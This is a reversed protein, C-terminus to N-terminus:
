IEVQYKLKHWVKINLELDVMADHLNAYDHQIGYEKGLIELRTKVGKVRKHHMKFLYELFNEGPKYPLNLKVGQALCKTDILKPLLHQYGRGHLNYWDRTLYLDFGIFNHGIIHDCNDFWESMEKFAEEQTVGLRLLKAHDYKTVEAAEKSIKLNPNFKLYNVYIDKRDIIENGRVKIMGVQWPFNHCFNLCLNLTEYDAFVITKNKDFRLLDKDM